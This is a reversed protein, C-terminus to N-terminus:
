ILNPKTVKVNSKPQRVIQGYLWLCSKTRSEKNYKM